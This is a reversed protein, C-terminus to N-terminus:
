PPSPPDPPACMSAILRVKSTMVGADASCPSTSRRPHVSACPYSYADSGAAAGSGSITVNRSNSSRRSPVSGEQVGRGSAPSTDSTHTVSVSGQCSRANKSAPSSRRSLIWKAPSARPRRNHLRARRVTCPLRRFRRGVGVIWRTRSSTSQSIHSLRWRPDLVLFGARPVESSKYVGTGWQLAMSRTSRPPSPHGLREMPVGATEPTLVGKYFPGPGAESWSSWLLPGPM